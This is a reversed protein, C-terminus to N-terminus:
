ERMLMVMDRREPSTSIKLREKSLKLLKKNSLTSDKL